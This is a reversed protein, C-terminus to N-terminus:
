IRMGKCTIIEQVLHERIYKWLFLKNEPGLTFNKPDSFGSGGVAGLGLYYITLKSGLDELGVVM